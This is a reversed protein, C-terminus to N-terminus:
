HKKDSYWTTRPGPKNKNAIDQYVWPELVHVKEPQAVKPKDDKAAKKDDDGKAKSKSKKHSRSKKQALMKPVVTEEVPGSMGYFTTRM